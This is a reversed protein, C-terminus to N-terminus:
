NFKCPPTSVWRLSDYKGAVELRPLLCNGEMELEFKYKHGAHNSEKFHVVEAILSDGYFIKFLNNGYEFFDTYTTEGKEFITISKTYDMKWEIRTLDKSLTSGMELEIRNYNIAKTFDRVNADWSGLILFVVLLVFLFPSAIAMMVTRAAYPSKIKGVEEKLWEWIRSM